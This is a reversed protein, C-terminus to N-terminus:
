KKRCSCIKIKPKSKKPLRKATLPEIKLVVGSDTKRINTIKYNMFKAIDQYVPIIDEYFSSVWGQKIGKIFSEKIVTRMEDLYKHTFELPSKYDKAGPKKFVYVILSLPYWKGNIDIAVVGNIVKEPLGWNNIM